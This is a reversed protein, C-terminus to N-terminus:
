SSDAFSEFKFFVQAAQVDITLERSEEPPEGWADLAADVAILFAEEFLRDATEKDPNGRIVESMPYIISGKSGRQYRFFCKFIFSTVLISDDVIEVLWNSPDKAMFIREPNSYYKNNELVVDSGDQYDLLM